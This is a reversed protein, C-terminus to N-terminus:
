RLGGDRRCGQERPRCHPRGRQGPQRPRRRRLGRARRWRGSIWARHSRSAARTCVELDERPWQPRPPGGRGQPRLSRPAAARTSSRRGIPPPWSSSVRARTSATSSPLLQDLTQEREDHGGFGPADWTGQRPMWSTSSSLARRRPRRRSSSIACGAAGVGVFMEIFDSGNMSFFPVGGRRRGGERAADQGHGPGALLVGEPDQRSGSTRQPNKLFDVIEM